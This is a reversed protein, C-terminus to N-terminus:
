RTCTPPPPASHRVRQREKQAETLGDAIQEIQHYLGLLAVGVESDWGREAVYAAARLNRAATRARKIIYARDDDLM